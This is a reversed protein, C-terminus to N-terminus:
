RFATPSWPHRRQLPLLRSRGVSETPWLVTERRFSCSCYRMYLYRSLWDISWDISWDMLWREILWDILWDILRHLVLSIFEMLRNITQNAVNQNTLSHNISQNIPPSQVLGFPLRHFLYRITSGRWQDTKGHRSHHAGRYFFTCVCPGNRPGNRVQDSVGHRISPLNGQGLRVLIVFFWQFYTLFVLFFPSFLPIVLLRAEALTLIGAAVDKAHTPYRREYHSM